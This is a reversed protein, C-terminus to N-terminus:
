AMSHLRVTELLGNLAMDLIAYRTAADLGMREGEM